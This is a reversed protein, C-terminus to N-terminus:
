TASTRVARVGIEIWRSATDRRRSTSASTLPRLTSETAFSMSFRRSFTLKGSSYWACTSVSDVLSSTFVPMISANPSAQAM